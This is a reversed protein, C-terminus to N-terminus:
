INKSRKKYHYHPYPSLILSCQSDIKNKPTMLQRSELVFKVANRTGGEFRDRNRPKRSLKEQKGKFGTM